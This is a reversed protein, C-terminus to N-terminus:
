FEKMYKFFFEPKKERDEKRRAIQNIKTDIEKYAELNIQLNKKIGEFYTSL